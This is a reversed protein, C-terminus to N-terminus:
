GGLDLMEFSKTNAQKWTFVPAVHDYSTQCQKIIRVDIVM